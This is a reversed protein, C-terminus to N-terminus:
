RTGDDRGDHFVQANPHTAAWGAWSTTLVPLPVLRQGQLNGGVAVGTTLDWRTITTLDEAVTGTASGSFEIPEGLVLRFWAASLGREPDHFVAVEMNGVVDNVVRRSSFLATPYARYDGRVSLGVVAEQAAPPAPAATQGMVDGGPLASVALFGFLAGANTRKM